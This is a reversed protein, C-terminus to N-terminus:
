EMLPCARLGAVLAAAIRREFGDREAEHGRANSPRRLPGLHSAQKELEPLAHELAHLVARLVHSNALKAGTARGYLAVLRNLTEEAASTLVFERKLNAPEGTLAQGGEPLGAPPFAPVGAQPVPRLAAAGIGPDLLKAVSSSPQPSSLSKAM